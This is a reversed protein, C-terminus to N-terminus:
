GPEVHKVSFIAVWDAAEHIMLEAADFMLRGLDDSTLSETGPDKARLWTLTDLMEQLQEGLEQSRRALIEFEGHARIAFSAMAFAPLIAAWLGPDCIKESPWSPLFAAWLEPECVKEPPWSMHGCLVLVKVIVAVFTIFFLIWSLLAMCKAVGKNEYVNRDHYQIQDWLTHRAFHKAEKTLEDSTLNRKTPSCARQLAAMVYLVWASADPANHAAAHLRDLPYSRGIRALHRAHRLLEALARHELWRAHWHRFLDLLFLALIIALFAIEAIGCVLKLKMENGWLTVKTEPFHLAIVAGAVAFAGLLYISFYSARHIRAFYEAREDAREFASDLLNLEELEKVDADDPPTKHPESPKGTVFRWASRVANVIAGVGIYILLFIGRTGSYVCGFARGFFEAPSGLWLKRWDALRQDLKKTAKESHQGVSPLLAALLLPHMINQCDEHDYRDRPATVKGDPPTLYRRKAPGPDPIVAVDKDDPDIAVIPIGYRIALAVAETTPCERPVSEPPYIAILMDCNHVIFRQAARYEQDTTQGGTSGANSRKGPESDQGLEVAFPCVEIRHEETLQEVKASLEGAAPGLTSLLKLQRPVDEDYLWTATESNLLGAACGIIGTLIQTATGEFKDWRKGVNEPYILGVRIAFPPLFDKSSNRTM